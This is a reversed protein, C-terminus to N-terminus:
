DVGAADLTEMAASGADAINDTIESYRVIAISVITGFAIAALTYLFPKLM